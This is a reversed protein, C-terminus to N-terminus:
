MDKKALRAIRSEKKDVVKSTINMQEMYVDIDGLLVALNNKITDVKDSIATGEGKYHDVTYKYNLFSTTLQCMEKIIVEAAEIEDRENRALIKVNDRYEM